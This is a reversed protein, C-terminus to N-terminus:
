RLPQLRSVGPSRAAVPELDLSSLVCTLHLTSRELLDGSGGETNQSFALVRVRQGTVLKQLLIESGNRFRISDRHASASQCHTSVVIEAASVDLERQLKKPIDKLLLATGPPICVAMVPEADVCGFFIKLATWFTRKSNRDLLIDAPSALGMSGSEFRHTMLEEGERAQRNPVSQLSYDCM